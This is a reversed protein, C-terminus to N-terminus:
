INTNIHHSLFCFKSNFTVSNELKLVAIDNTYEQANYREHILVRAVPVDIPAAGDRM